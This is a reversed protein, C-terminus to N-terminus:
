TGSRIIPVSARRYPCSIGKDREDCTASSGSAPSGRPTRLAGPEEFPHTAGPVVALESVGPLHCRAERNLELVIEDHGGVILLVPARVQRLHAGALDPREGRSVVAAIGEGLQAAASLAAGAGTSAGTL